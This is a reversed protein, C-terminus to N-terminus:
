KKTYEKYLCELGHYVQGLCASCSTTYTFRTGALSNWLKIARNKNDQNKANGDMILLWIEKLEIIEDKTLERMIEM